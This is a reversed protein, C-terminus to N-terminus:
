FRYTLQMGWAELNFLNLQNQSPAIPPTTSSVQGSATLYLDIFFDEGIIFGMGTFIGLESKLEYNFASYKGGELATVTNNTETTTLPMSLSYKVGARFEFWEKPSVITGIPVNIYPTIKATTTKAVDNPTTGVIITGGAYTTTTKNDKIYGDSSGYFEVGIEPDINLKVIDKALVWSFSPSAQLTFTINHLKQYKKETVIKEIGGSGTSGWIADYGEYTNTEFSDRNGYIRVDTGLTFLIGTMPGVSMPLWFEPKLTLNVWLSNFKENTTVTNAGFVWKEYKSNYGDNNLKLALPIYVYMEGFKITAAVEHVWQSQSTINTSVTKNADPATFDETIKETINTKAGTRILYYHFSMSDNLKFVPRFMIDGDATLTTKARMGNPPTTPNYEDVRKTGAKYAGAIAVYMNGIPMGWFAQMVSGGNVVQPVYGASFITRDLDFIDKSNINDSDSSFEGATAQWVASNQLNAGFDVEIPTQAFVNTAFIVALALIILIKKM